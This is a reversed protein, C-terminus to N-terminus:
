RGGLLVVSFYGRPAPQLERATGDCRVEPPKPRRAVAAKPDIKAAWLNQVGAVPTADDSVPKGLVDGIGPILTLAIQYLLM